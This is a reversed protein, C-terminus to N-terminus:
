PLAVLRGWEKQDFAEIWVPWGLPTTTPVQPTCHSTKTPCGLLPALQPEREPLLLILNVGEESSSCFRYELRPGM